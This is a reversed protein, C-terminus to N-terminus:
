RLLFINKLFSADSPPAGGGSDYETSPANDIIGYITGDASVGDIRFGMINTITIPFTGTNRDSEAWAEPSFLGVTVIVPGNALLTDVGSKTPGVKAGPLTQITDGISAELVCGSIAEEYTNADGIGYYNSPAAADQPKGPRLMLTTGVDAETFGPATYADVGPDFSGNGNVDTFKDPILWPKLCDAHNVDQVGATATARTRMDASDRFIVSFFRPLRTSENTGDRFVDVRVCPGGGGFWDPCTWSVVTGPVEGFVINARAADYASQYALGNEAPPDTWEDLARATAGALAGADAANQAQGRATWMVGLDTVFATLGLLVTLSLAAIVLSVGEERHLIGRM